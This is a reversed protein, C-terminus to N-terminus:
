KSRFHVARLPLGIHKGLGNARNYGEGPPPEFSRRKSLLLPVAQPPPSLFERNLKLRGGPQAPRAASRQPALAGTTALLAGGRQGEQALPLTKQGKTSKFNMKERKFDAPHQAMVIRNNENLNFMNKKAAFDAIVFFIFLRSIESPYAAISSAYSSDEYYILYTTHRM